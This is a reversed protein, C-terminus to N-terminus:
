TIKVWAFSCGGSSRVGNINTIMLIERQEKDEALKNNKDRKSLPGKTLTEELLQITHQPPTSNLNKPSIGKSKKLLLYIEKVLSDAIFYKQM